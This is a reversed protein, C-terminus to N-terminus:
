SGPFAKKIEELSIGLVFRSIGNLSKENGIFHFVSHNHKLSQGPQLFAAPSVSELEYFPGMQSGNALPGDNYANVADGSFPPKGINWEQNLYKGNPDVDFLIITLVQNDADYSGAVPRARPPYIGLKGRSKGDARYIIMSDKMLLREPPIKGFYDTTAIRGNAESRDPRTMGRRFPVLIVASPSPRFMDLMWICPMGSSATWEHIGTNTLFNVTQYGVAHVTTDAPIGLVSDIKARDLITVMRDISLSFSTGAYNALQMDKHLSVSRGNKTVVTWAETDFPPPTKWNPYVMSKGKTFFLSFKGGEPGLWLRDEGGYANMHSDVAAAFAKYNIWGFSYGTDGRATSTFVKGQYKPSVILEGNGQSNQLVIVSDQQKLFDLDYRFSGQPYETALTGEDRHSGDQCSAFGIAAGAAFLLLCTNLRAGGM